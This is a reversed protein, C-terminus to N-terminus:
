LCTVYCVADVPSKNGYAYQRFRNSNTKRRQLRSGNWSNGVYRNRCFVDDTIRESISVSPIVNMDAASEHEAAQGMKFNVDPMFVTGGFSINTGKTCTILSPNQLTSEACHSYGIGAGGMGRSKAGVAILTDGNTAFLPTIALTAILSLQISIKKM